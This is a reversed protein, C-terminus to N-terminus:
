EGGVTNTAWRSEHLINPAPDRLVSASGGCWWCSLQYCGEKDCPLAVAGPCIMGRVEKGSANTECEGYCM